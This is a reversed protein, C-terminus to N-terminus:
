AEVIATFVADRRTISFVPIRKMRVKWASQGTRDGAVFFAVDLVGDM